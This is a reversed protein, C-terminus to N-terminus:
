RRVGRDNYREPPTTPALHTLLLTGGQDGLQLSLSERLLVRLSDVDGADLVGSVRLQAIDPSGVTVKQSTYRNFEAMADGLPVDDFVLKGARWADIRRVDAPHEAIAGGAPYSAAQNAVLRKAGAADRADGAEDRAGPLGPASRPEVVVTGELVSVTVQNRMLEVGFQTGVARAVGGAAWVEFPRSADHAVVFFAEGRKLDVRRVKGNMSVAIESDTNLTVTSRDALTISRREGVLTRYIEPPRATVSRYTVGAAVLVLLAAFGAGLPGAWSFRRVGEFWAARPAAALRACYELDARLQPHGGLERGSAAARECRLYCNRHEPSQAFWADFETETARRVPRDSLRVFWRAAEAEIASIDRVSADLHAADTM